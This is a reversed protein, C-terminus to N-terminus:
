LVIDAHKLVSFHNLYREELPIWREIFVTRQAEGNRLLIRCLQEACEVDCFCKVAAYNGYLPHCSYAGEVIRWASARIEQRGAFDRTECDFRRYSFPEFRSIHPLVEQMFREYHINGGPEALRAKTRLAVPLFFDDMHVVDSKLILSLQTAMTTKGSAARGDLAVVQPQTQDSAQALKELLPFLRIFRACVVRYSPHEAATYMVSHHVAGGGSAYASRQAAWDEPSFPACGFACLQDAVQLLREFEEATGSPMTSSGIFMRFLWAPPLGRAKWASLNVRCREQSIHEYLPASKAAARSFEEDFSRQAAAPDRILHEAGFVAQYCLKILDIPRMSPHMTIQRILFAQAASITQRNELRSVRKSLM